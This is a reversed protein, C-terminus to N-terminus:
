IINKYKFKGQFVIEKIPRESVKGRWYDAFENILDEYLIHNEIGDIIRMDAEFFANTKILEIEYISGVDNLHTKIYYNCSDLNDFLFTSQLRKPQNPFFNTRVYESVIEWLYTGNDFFIFNNIHDFSQIFEYVSKISIIQDRHNVNKTVKFIDIYEDNIISNTINQLYDNGELFINNNVSILFDVSINNTHMVRLFTNIFHQYHRFDFSKGYNFDKTDYIKDTDVNKIEVRYYKKLMYNTYFIVYRNPAQRLSPNQLVFSYIFCFLQHSTSHEILWTVWWQAM